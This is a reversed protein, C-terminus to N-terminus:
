HRPSGGIYLPPHRGVAIDQREIEADMQQNRELLTQGIRAALQAEERSEALARHLSEVEEEMTGPPPATAQLLLEGSYDAPSSLTRSRFHMPNVGKTRPSRCDVAPLTKSAEQTAAAGHEATEPQEEGRAARRPSRM